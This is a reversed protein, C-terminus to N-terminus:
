YVNFNIEVNYTVGAQLGSFCLQKFQNEISQKLLQNETRAVVVDVNGAANMMFAVKVNQKFGPNKLEAPLSVSQMITQQVSACTKGANPTEAAKASILGLSLTTALVLTKFNTNM